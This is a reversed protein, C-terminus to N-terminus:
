DRAQYREGAVLGCAHPRTNRFTVPVTQGCPLANYHPPLNPGCAQVDFHLHPGASDGTNGSLAISQGQRVVDGVSVLAGDRTLHFYRSITGDAHRIFVFNEKLDEGNGDVFAEQVAVVRGARSGVITTGIPMPVDIAYLGVGGNSRIFHRTTRSVLFEQGAEWPLFSAQRAAISIRCLSGARGRQIGTM